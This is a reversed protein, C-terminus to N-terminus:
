IRFLILIFHPFFSFGEWDQRGTVGVISRFSLDMQSPPLLIEKLPLINHSVEKVVTKENQREPSTVTSLLAVYNHGCYASIM